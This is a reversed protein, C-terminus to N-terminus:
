KGCVCFYKFKRYNQNSMSWRSQDPYLYEQRGLESTGTSVCVLWGRGPTSGGLGKRYAGLAKGKAILKTIKSDSKSWPTGNEGFSIEAYKAPFHSDSLAPLVPTLSFPEGLGRCGSPACTSHVPAYAVMQRHTTATIIAFVPPLLMQFFRLWPPCLRPQPICGM